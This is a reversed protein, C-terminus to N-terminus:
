YPIPPKAYIRWAYIKKTITFDKRVKTQLEVRRSVSFPPSVAICRAAVLGRGGTRGQVETRWLTWNFLCQCYMVTFVIVCCHETVCSVKLHLKGELILHICCFIYWVEEVHRLWQQDDGLPWQSCHHLWLKCEKYQCIGCTILHNYYNIDHLHYM